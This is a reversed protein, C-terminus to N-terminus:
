NIPIAQQILVNSVVGAGMVLQSQKLLRQRVIEIDAASWRGSSNLPQSYMERIYSDRLRPILQRAIAEKTPSALELNLSLLLQYNRQNAGPITLQLPDLRIFTVDPAAEVQLPKKEPPAADNAFHYVLGKGTVGVYTAVGGSLLAIFISVIVVTRSKV